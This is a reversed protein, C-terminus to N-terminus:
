LINRDRVGLIWAEEAEVGQRIDATLAPDGEFLSELMDETDLEAYRRGIAAVQGADKPRGKLFRPAVLSPYVEALIVSPRPDFRLGTEFPWIHCNFALQPAKRIQWVRPIGTLTQGGVSGAGALKWVPQTSPVLRDCHRREPLDTSGHPRRGRRLLHSRTEERPLGWFPFAEDTLRVNLSEAVDFRNNRNDDHDSIEDELTQWLNRWALGRYGLRQATGAPFGFPFDFGILMRRGRNLANSALQIIRETAAARTSPNELVSLVYGNRRRATLGLWISDAGRKPTNAASWDVMLYSDFVPM